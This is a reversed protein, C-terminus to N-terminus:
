KFKGAAALFTSTENALIDSRIFNVEAFLKIETKTIWLLQHYRLEKVAEPLGPHQM